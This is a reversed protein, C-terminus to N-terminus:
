PCGRGQGAGLMYMRLIRCLIEPLEHSGGSGRHYQSKCYFIHIQDEDRDITDGHGLDDLNEGM